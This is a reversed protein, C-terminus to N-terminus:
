RRTSYGWCTFITPMSGVLAAQASAEIFAPPITERGSGGLEIMAPNFQLVGEGTAQGMIEVPM